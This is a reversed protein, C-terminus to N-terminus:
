GRQLRRLVAKEIEVLFLVTSAVLTALIWTGLDLSTSGFLHQLPPAYTFALQLVIVAIVAIITVRNGFLGDVNLIPALLFRSSFLYFVGFLVLTNVAVTRARAVDGDAGFSWLFLGFTGTLLIAAVFAIRWAVFRSLLPETPRRPPRSMVDREPPEFALALALTVTTVMNIWLIQVPTIPLVAGFAIAGIIVMAGAVSTPLIYAISKVINDYVARGEEVAEVITTFNDDTLVMEAAEMAADTGKRGMAVGIDARRLAPADNVGDGTMAVVEGRAQLAEVLRLKHEPTTRAFVSKEVAQRAFDANGLDDLDRGVIAGDRDALGLEVAIAVATDAHDGTIMKLTIGAERCRRIADIAEARPPDALGFLALLVLGGDVDEARLVGHDPRTPRTAVALVRQGRRAIETMAAQWAPSDLAREVGDADRQRACMELVREPAGKVVIFWRDHHDHHLTAMYRVEAEFPLVDNRPRNRREIEPDLGFKAAASVLAGEMPDGDVIWIGDTERVSADSCLVAARLAETLAPATDPAIERDGDLFAGHPAYGDGTVALSRGGVVVTRVTMENRTLTGTKDACIVTVSGLTEVAPLRHVIARRRAMRSVGIALAITMIAPLGEPIAAVALGVAALFMDIAAYDRVLYGFAFTAAAVLGIAVTLHRAFRSLQRLLPTALPAVDALLASIRGIETEAGTAVVVGRGQGYVALTGSYAMSTRDGLTAKESVRRTSKEVAESEGTLAAEDIRLTREWTLRLDAPVKDGSQLLVIDGPVLSVADVVARRGARIVTARPALMHLIADLAQEARGEQIFGVLANILVVGFIVAADTGYGIGLTVAGALLLVYILLNNFQEVFRRLPGRRRATQILNPGHRERRVAAESESLGETRTELRALTDDVSLAHWDSPPAPIGTGATTQPPM